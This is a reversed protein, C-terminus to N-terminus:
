RRDAALHHANFALPILDQVSNFIWVEETANILLVRYNEEQLQEYEVMVQRCAGCPSPALEKDNIPAYIAIADIVEKPCLAHHAYLVVREACLGSPYAANEQNNGTKVKGSKTRIAAGVHFRSHPAYAKQAALMAEKMLSQDAPACEHLQGKLYSAKITEEKM